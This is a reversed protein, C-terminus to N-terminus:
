VKRELEKQLKDIMRKKLNEDKIFGHEIGIIMNKINIPELEEVSLHLLDCFLGVPKEAESIYKGSSLASAIFSYGGLCDLIKQREKM